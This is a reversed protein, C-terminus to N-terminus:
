LKSKSNIKSIDVINSMMQCMNEKTLIGSKKLKLFIETVQEKYSNIIEYIETCDHSMQMFDDTSIGLFSLVSHFAIYNKDDDSLKGNYQMTDICYLPLNMELSLLKAEQYYINLDNEGLGLLVIGCPKSNVLIENYCSSSYLDEGKEKSRAIGIKEIVEPTALSTAKEKNVYGTGFVNSALDYASTTIIESNNPYIFGIKRLDAGYLAIFDSSIMSCSSQNPRNILLNAKDRM